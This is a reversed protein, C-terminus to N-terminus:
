ADRLRRVLGTSGEIDTFPFTVTGPPEVAAFTCRDPPAQFAAHSCKKM